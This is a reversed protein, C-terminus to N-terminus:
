PPVDVPPAGDPVPLEAGDFPAGAIVGPVAPLATDGPTPVPPPPDLGPAAGCNCGVGPSGEVPLTVPATGGGPIPGVSLKGAVGVEGTLVPLMLVFVPLLKGVEVVPAAASGVFGDVGYAPLVPPDEDADCAM